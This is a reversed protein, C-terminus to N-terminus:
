REKGRGAENFSQVVVDQTGLEECVQTIDSARTREAVM